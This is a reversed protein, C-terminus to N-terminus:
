LQQKLKEYEAQLSEMQQSIQLMRQFVATMSSPSAKAAPAKVRGKGRGRGRGKGRGKGLAKVEEAAPKEGAARKREAKKIGAGKLWKSITLQTIGFKEAAASQGGRGKSKNFETIFAIVEDKTKQDYRVAMSTEPQIAQLSFDISTRMVLMALM